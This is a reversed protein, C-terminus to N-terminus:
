SVAPTRAGTRNTVNRTAWPMPMPPSHPLATSSLVSCPGGLRRPRKLLQGAIPKASANNPLLRVKTSIELSGSSSKRVQPHRSGNRPDITRTPMPIQTRSPISSVGSNTRPRASLRGARTGTIMTSRRHGRRTAIPMRAESPVPDTIAINM